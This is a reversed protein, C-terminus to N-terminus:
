ASGRCRVAVLRVEDPLRRGARDDRESLDEGGPRWRVVLVQLLLADHAAGVVPAVAWRRVFAPRPAGAGSDLPRGRSDLLDYYGNTNRYLSSSPSPTLGPGGTARPPDVALNTTRDTLPAGAADVGYTLSRLQELKQDACVAAVSIAGAHRSARGVAVVLGAMSLVAATLISSAVLVELLTSGRESARRADTSVISM